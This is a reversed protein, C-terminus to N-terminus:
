PSSGNEGPKLVRCEPSHNQALEIVQESTYEPTNEDPTCAGHVLLGLVLVVIAINNIYVNKLKLRKARNRLSM